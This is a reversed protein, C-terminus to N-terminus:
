IIAQLLGLGFDRAPGLPRVRNSMEKFLELGRKGTQEALLAAIGAVHPAAMSTGSDFALRTPMRRSSWVDSGPGTFNIEGGGQVDYLSPNSYIAVSLDKTAAAVALISPCNAPSGVGFQAGQNRENGAAAVLLTGAALANRAAGEWVSSFGPSTVPGNFSMNVVACKEAILAALAELLWTDDGTARAGLSPVHLGKASYINSNFAVGYRRSIGTFAQPFRPGCATGIVHTGHGATDGPDTDQLNQNKPIFSARFPHRAAIDPQTDDCGSDIVGVNIGAGTFASELVRTARLGWTAEADDAFSQAAVGVRSERGPSADCGLGERLGRGYGQVYDESYNRDASAYKYFAPEVIVPADQAASASLRAMQDPEGSLIMVGLPELYVVDASDSSASKAEFTENARTDRTRKVDFGAQRFMRMGDGVTEKDNRRVLAIFKGTPVPQPVVAAASFGRFTEALPREDFFPANQDEPM